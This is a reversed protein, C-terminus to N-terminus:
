SKSLPCRNCEAVKLTKKGDYEVHTDDMKGLKLIVPPGGPCTGDGEKPTNERAVAKFLDKPHQMHAVTLRVLRNALYVLHPDDQLRQNGFKLSTVVRAAVNGDVLSHHPKTSAESCFLVHGMFRSVIASLELPYTRFMRRYVPLSVMCPALSSKEGGAVVLVPQLAGPQGMGQYHVCVM